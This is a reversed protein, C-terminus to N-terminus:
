EVMREEEVVRLTAFTHRLQYPTRYEVGAHRLLPV